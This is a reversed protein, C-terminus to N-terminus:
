DQTTGKNFSKFIPNNKGNITRRIMCGFVAFLIATTQVVLAPDPGYPIASWEVYTFLVVSQCLSGCPGSRSFM